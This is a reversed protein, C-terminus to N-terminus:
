RESFPHHEVFEESSNLSLNPFLFSALIFSPLSCRRKLTRIINWTEGSQDVDNLVNNLNPDVPTLNIKDLETKIANLKDMTNTASDNSAAAKKKAEEIM